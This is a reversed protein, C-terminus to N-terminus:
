QGTIRQWIDTRGILAFGIFGRVKIRDPEELELFSSYTNGSKPDYITGNEWRRENKKVFGSMFTLGLIPRDRKASDPNHIDKKELGDPTKPEKLAIIKASLKGAEEFIEFTADDNKWQGVPSVPEAAEIRETTSAVLYVAFITLLLCSFKARIMSGNQKCNKTM